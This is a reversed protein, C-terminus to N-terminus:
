KLLLLKKRDFTDIEIRKIAGFIKRIQYPYLREKKPLEYGIYNGIIMAASIMLEVQGRIIDPIIERVSKKTKDQLEIELDLIHTDKM